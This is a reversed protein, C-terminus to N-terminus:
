PPPPGFRLLHYGDRNWLEVAPPGRHSLLNIIGELRARNPALYLDERYLLLVAKGTSKHTLASQLEGQSSAASQGLDIKIGPHTEYDPWYPLVAWEVGGVYVPLDTPKLSQRLASSLGRLDEVPRFAFVRLWPITMAVALLTLVAGAMMRQRSRPHAAIGLGLGLLFPLMGPLMTRPWVVPVAVLSYGILLSWYLVAVALLPRAMGVSARSWAVWVAFLAAIASLTLLAPGSGTLHRNCADALWIITNGGTIEGFVHGLLGGSVPPMWWLGPEKATRLLFVSHFFGFLVLTPIFAIATRRLVAPRASRLRWALVPALAAAFFVTLLHTATAVALAVALGILPVSNEPAQVHSLAFALASALALSILAYQRLEQANSVFGPSAALMMAACWGAGPRDKDSSFCFVAVAGLGCVVSFLRLLTFSQTLELGARLLAFYAPPHDYNRAMAIFDRASAQAYSSAEDIWLSKDIGALRLGAAVVLIVAPVAWKLWAPSPYSESVPEVVSPTTFGTM